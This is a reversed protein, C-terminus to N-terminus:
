KSAYLWCEHCGFTILPTRRQSHISTWLVWLCSSRTQGSIEFLMRNFQIICVSVSAITIIFNVLNIYVKPHGLHPDGGDCCVVRETCEKPPVEAILNIGLIACIIRILFLKLLYGNAIFNNSNKRINRSNSPNHTKHVGTKTSTVHQIQSDCMGTTM